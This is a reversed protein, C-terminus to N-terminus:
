VGNALSKVPQLVLRRSGRRGRIKERPDQPRTKAGQHHISGPREATWDDGATPQAWESSSDCHRDFNVCARVRLIAAPDCEMGVFVNVHDDDIKLFDAVVVSPLCAM